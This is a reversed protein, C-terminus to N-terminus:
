RCERMLVLSNHFQFNFLQVFDLSIADALRENSHYFMVFGDVPERVVIESCKGPADRMALNQETFPLILFIKFFALISTFNLRFKIPIEKIKYAFHVSFSHIVDINLAYTIVILM